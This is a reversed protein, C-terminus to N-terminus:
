RAANTLPTRHFRTLMEMTTQSSCRAPRRRACAQPLGSPYDRELGRRTGPSGALAPAAGRLTRQERVRGPGLDRSVQASEDSRRNREYQAIERLLAKTRDWDREAESQRVYQLM